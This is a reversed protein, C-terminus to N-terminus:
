SEIAEQMDSLADVIGNMFDYVVDRSKRPERLLGVVQGVFYSDLEQAGPVGREAAASIRSWAEEVLLSQLPMPLPDPTGDREWAEHYATVLQRAPKGTRARSRRTDSSAARLFKHKVVQDTEAEDTTLWVSGTWAGAAGLALSAALQRGTAIGGAALVPTPHVADVVEPTLVMTAIDGTHGGAEYGQAVILDVAREQQKAAHTVNGVLAAVPVGNRKGLDLMEQPPPGLANAMLKIPHRFAVELAECVADPAVTPQEPALTYQEGDQMVGHERLLDNMFAVHEDPIMALLQEPNEDTTALKAPALLDIGYPRGNTQDDLWRLEVELEDPTFRTAGLVGIGGANTVAAVVDRCHSFAALPVEIGFMETMPTRM